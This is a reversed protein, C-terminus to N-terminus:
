YSSGVAYLHVKTVLSSELRGHRRGAAGSSPVVLDAVVSKGSGTRTVATDEAKDLASILSSRNHDTDLSLCVM